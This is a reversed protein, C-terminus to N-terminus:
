LIAVNAVIRDFKALYPFAPPAILNDLNYGVEEAHDAAWTVPDFTAWKASDVTVLGDNLKGTKAIIYHHFLLFISATPLVGTRGSGAVSFYAVAPNNTYKASFAQASVTTLDRLGDLSIGLENLVLELPNYASKFPLGPFPQLEM